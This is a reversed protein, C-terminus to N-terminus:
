AFFGTQALTRAQGDRGVVILAYGSKNTVRQAGVGIVFGFHGPRALTGRLYGTASWVARRSSIEVVRITIPADERGPASPTDATVVTEDRGDFAHVHQGPLVAVVKGTDTSLVRGPLSPDTPSEAFLAGDDSSVVYARVQEAALAYQAIVRGDASLDIIAAVTPAATEGPANSMMEEVVIRGSSPACSLVGHLAIGPEPRFTYIDTERGTALSLIGLRIDGAYGSAHHMVCLSSSDTSWRYIPEPDLLRLTRGHADVVHDHGDQTIEQDILFVQGNPSAGGTDLIGSTNVLHPPSFATGMAQDNWRVPIVQDLQNPLRMFWQDNPSGDDTAATASSPAGAVTAGANGTSSAPARTSACGATGMALTCALTVRIFSLRATM